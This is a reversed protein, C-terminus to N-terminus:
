FFLDCPIVAKEEFLALKYGPHTYFALTNMMRSNDVGAFLIDRVDLKGFKKNLYELSDIAGMLSSGIEYYVLPGSAGKCACLASYKKLNDNLDEEHHIYDIHCTRYGIIDKLYRATMFFDYAEQGEKVIYPHRKEGDKYGFELYTKIKGM